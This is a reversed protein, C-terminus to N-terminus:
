TILPTEGLPSHVTINSLLLPLLTIGGYDTRGAGISMESEGHVYVAVLTVAEPVTVAIVTGTLTTLRSHRQAGRENVIL